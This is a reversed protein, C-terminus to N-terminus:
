LDGMVKIRRVSNQVRTVDSEAVVVPIDAVAKITDQIIRQYDPVDQVSPTPIFGGAFKAAGVEMNPTNGVSREMQALVPAFARTAKATMVSEGKSLRAPISDSTETGAGRLGIVGRAFKPPEPAVVGKIAGILGAVQAAFGILLPINQPFGVKATEATGQTIALFAKRVAMAKEFLFLGRSIASGEKAVGKLSAITADAIEENLQKKRNGYQQETILGQQLALKLAAVRDAYTGKIAETTEKALRIEESQLEGLMNIFDPIDEIEEEDFLKFIVGEANLATKRKEILKDFELQFAQISEIGDKYLKAEIEAYMKLQMSREKFAEFRATREDAVAKIADDASKKQLSNIATQIRRTENKLNAELQDKQAGLEALKKIGEADTDNQDQQKKLKEIELDLEQQKLQNLNTAALIATEGAKLREADSKNVDQLIERQEAIIRNFRGESAAITLSIQRLELAIQVLRQGDKWAESLEDGIGAVTDKLDSWGQKAEGSFIKAFAAGVNQVIGLVRQLTTGLPILIKNIADLGKQTTTLYAIVTGLVVVIAGIGTSILAVKLVRLVASLGTVAKSTGGVAQTTMQLAKAGKEINNTVGKINIGMQQFADIIGNKYNGVNGYFMGSQADVEKIEDRLGKAELQLKKFADSGVETKELQKNFLALQARMSELTKVSDKESVNRNRVQTQLERYAKQEVQLQVKKEEAASKDTKSVEKIDKSLEDMNQRIQALRSLETETGKIELTYLLQKVDAM